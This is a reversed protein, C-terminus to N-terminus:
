FLLKILLLYCCVSFLNDSSNRHPHQVWSAFIFMANVMLLLEDEAIVMTGAETKMIYHLYHMLMQNDSAECYNGEMM